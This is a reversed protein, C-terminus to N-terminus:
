LYICPILYDHYIRSDPSSHLSTNVRHGLNALNALSVVNPVVHIRGEPTGIEHTLLQYLTDASELIHVRNGEVGMLCQHNGQLGGEEETLMWSQHGTGVAHLSIVEEM